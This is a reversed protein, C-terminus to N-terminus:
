IKEKCSGVTECSRVGVCSEATSLETEVKRVGKACVQSHTVFRITGPTISMALVGKERLRNCVVSATMGEDTLDAGIHALVINSHVSTPDVDVANPMGLNYFGQLVCWNTCFSYPPRYITM